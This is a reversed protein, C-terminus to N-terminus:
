KWSLFNEDWFLYITTGLILYQMVHKLLCLFIQTQWSLFGDLNKVIEDVSPFWMTDLQAGYLRYKGTSSHVNLNPPERLTMQRCKIKKRNNLIVRENNEEFTKLLVNCWKWSDLSTQKNHFHCFKRISKQFRHLM